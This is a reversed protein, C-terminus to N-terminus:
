RWASGVQLYIATTEPGRAVDIGSYLGLKRAILYRFGVGGAAVSEAESWDSRQGYAKGVGWLLGIQPMAIVPAIGKQRDAM